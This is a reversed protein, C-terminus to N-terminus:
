TSKVARWILFVPIRRWRAGRPNSFLTAEPAARSAGGEIVFPADAAAEMFKGADQMPHTISACLAGNPSLVRAGERVSAEM